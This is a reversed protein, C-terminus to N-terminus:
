LLRGQDNAFALPMKNYKSRNCPRCLLQMNEITNTGGMSLPVSHDKHWTNSSIAAFCNACKGYQKVYLTIIEGQTFSGRKERTRRIHDKISTKDRVQTSRVAVGPGKNSACGCSITEGLTLRDARIVKENGCDCRCTWRRNGRKTKRPEIRVAVLRGFRLGQIQRQRNPRDGTKLHGCSTAFGKRLNGSYHVSGNGCDCKCKWQSPGARDMREVVLLCGFRQGRLDILRRGM